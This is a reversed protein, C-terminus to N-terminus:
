HYHGHGHAQRVGVGCSNLARKRITHQLVTLVLECVTALVVPIHLHASVCEETATLIIGATLIIESNKCKCEKTVIIGGFDVAPIIKVAVSSLDLFARILTIIRLNNHLM